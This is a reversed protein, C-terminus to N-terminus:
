CRVVSGLRYQTINLMEAIVSDWTRLNVGTLLRRRVRLMARNLGPVHVTEFPEGSLLERHPPIDSILAEPALFIGEAASGYANELRTTSLYFRAGRLEQIVQAHEVVGRLHISKDRRLRTPVFQTPGFIHMRLESDQSRLWNFVTLADNLAKYKWTGVVIVTPETQGKSQSTGLFALEDNSGQVSVVAKQAFSHGILRVSSESMVSVVECWKASARLRPGLVLRKFRDFATIPLHHNTLPLVNNVHLWNVRGIPYPIPIGCSYYLDPTERRVERLYKFNSLLRQLRTTRVTWYRNNPFRDRLGECAPHILFRAGGHADFWQAFADLRKRGGGIYSASFNFTVLSIADFQFPVSQKM